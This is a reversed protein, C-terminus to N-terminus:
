SASDELGVDSGLKSVPVSLLPSFSVIPAPASFCLM